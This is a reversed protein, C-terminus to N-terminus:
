FQELELFEQVTMIPIDRFPNLVLLDADGSVICTANGSIALELYKDDKPDRCVEIREEVEVFKVTKVFGALFLKREVATVYKDFKPRALVEELESLVLTSTLVIGTAQAKDLAQRARGEKILTASVIVNTDLVFLRELSM